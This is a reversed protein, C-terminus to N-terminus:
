NLRRLMENIKAQAQHLDDEQESTLRLNVSSLDTVENLLQRCRMDIEDLRTFQKGTRGELEPHTLRDTMEFGGTM